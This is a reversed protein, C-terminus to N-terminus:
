VPGSLQGLDNSHLPGHRDCTLLVLTCCRVDLDSLGLDTFPHSPCLCYGASARTPVRVPPCLITLLGRLGASALRGAVQGALNWARAESRYAASPTATSASRWHCRPSRYRWCPPSSDRGGRTSRPRGSPQYRPWACRASVNLHRRVSGDSLLHTGVCGTGARPKGRAPV